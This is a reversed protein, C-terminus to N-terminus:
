TGSGKSEGGSGCVCVCAHENTVSQGSMTHSSSEISLTYYSTNRTGVFRARERLFILRELNSFDQLHIGYVIPLSCAVGFPHHALDCSVDLDFPFRLGDIRLEREM